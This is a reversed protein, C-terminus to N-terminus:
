RESWKPIPHVLKASAWETPAVVKNECIDGECRVQFLVM